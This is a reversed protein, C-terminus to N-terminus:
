SETALSRLPFVWHKGQQSLHDEMTICEVHNSWYETRMLFHFVIQRSVCFLGVPYFGIRRKITNEGNPCLADDAWHRSKKTERMATRKTHPVIRADKKQIGLSYPYWEILSISVM